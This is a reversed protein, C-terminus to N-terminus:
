FCRAAGTPWRVFKGFNYLLRNSKTERLASRTRTRGPFSNGGIGTRRRGAAALDTRYGHSRAGAKGKKQRHNCTWPAQARIGGGRTESVRTAWCLRQAPNGGSEAPGRCTGRTQRPGDRNGGRSLVGARSGTGLLGSVQIPLAKSSRQSASGRLPLKGSSPYRESNHPATPCRRGYVWLALTEVLKAPEGQTSFARAYPAIDAPLDYMDSLVIM